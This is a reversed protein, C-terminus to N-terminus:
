RTVSHQGIGREAAASTRQALRTSRVSPTLTTSRRANFLPRTLPRPAPVLCPSPLSVMDGHRVLKGCAPCEIPESEDIAQQSSPLKEEQAGGPCTELHVWLEEERGEWQCCGPCCVVVAAGSQAASQTADGIASSAAADPAYSQPASPQSYTPSSQAHMAAKAAKSRTNSGSAPRKGNSSSRTHTSGQIDIGGPHELTAALAPPRAEALRAKSHAGSSATSKTAQGRVAVDKLSSSSQHTAETVHACQWRTGSSASPTQEMGGFTREACLRAHADLQNPHVKLKCVPCPKHSDAAARAGRANSMMSALIDGGTNRTGAARPLGAPSPGDDATADAADAAAINAAAANLARCGRELHDRMRTTLIMESCSPCEALETITGLGLRCASSAFFREM